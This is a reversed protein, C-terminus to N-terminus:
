DKGGYEPNKDRMRRYEIRPDYKYGLIISDIQEPDIEMTWRYGDAINTLPRIKKGLGGRVSVQKTWPIGADDIYLIKYKKPVQCNSGVFEISKNGEASLSYRVLIDGIEFNWSNYEKILKYLHSSAMNNIIVTKDEDKLEYTEM